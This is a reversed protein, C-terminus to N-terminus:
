GSNILVDVTMENRVNVTLFKLGQISNKFLYQLELHKLSGKSTDLKKLWNYKAQGAQM